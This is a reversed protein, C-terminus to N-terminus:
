ARNRSSPASQSQECISFVQIAWPGQPHELSRNASLIRDNLQKHRIYVAEAHVGCIRRVNNPISTTFFTSWEAASPVIDPDELEATMTVLVTKERPLFRTEQVNGLRAMEISGHLKKGLSVHVPSPSLKNKMVDRLMLGHIHAVTIRKGGSDMLIDSLTRTLNLIPDPSAVGDKDTAALIEMRANIAAVAAYCCDMVLLVEAYRTTNLARSIYFWDISVESDLAGTLMCEYEGGHAHGNYVVMLMTNKQDHDDAFRSIADVADKEAERVSLGSKLDHRQIAYGYVVQLTNRLHEVAPEIDLDGKDWCLFLVHVSVYPQTRSSYAGQIAKNVDTGFVELSAIHKLQTEDPMIVQLHSATAELVLVRQEYACTAGRMPIQSSVPALFIVVHGRPSRKWLYYSPLILQPVGKVLTSNRFDLSTRPVAIVRDSISHGNEYPISYEEAHERENNGYAM